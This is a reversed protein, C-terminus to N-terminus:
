FFSIYDWGTVAYLTQFIQHLANHPLQAMDPDNPLAFKLELIVIYLDKSSYSNIQIIIYKIENILPLGIHYIDTDPSLILIESSTSQNVHAWM